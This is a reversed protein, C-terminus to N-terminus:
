VDLEHFGDVSKPPPKMLEKSIQDALDEICYNLEQEIIDGSDDVWEDFPWSPTDCRFKRTSHQSGPKNLSWEYDIAVTLSLVIKKGAVKKLQLSEVDLCIRADTAGPPGLSSAPLTQALANALEQNLKHSDQLAELKPIIRATDKDSFGSIGMMGGVLTTVGITTPAAIAFCFAFYPGCALSGFFSATLGGLAGAAAGKAVSEGRSPGTDTSTKSDLAKIEIHEFSQHPIPINHACGSLLTTLLFCTLLKIYNVHKM